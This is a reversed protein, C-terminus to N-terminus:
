KRGEPQKEAWELCKEVLVMESSIGTLFDLQLLFNVSDLSAILFTPEDLCLKTKKALVKQSRFALSISICDCLYHLLFVSRLV